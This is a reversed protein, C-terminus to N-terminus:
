VEVMFVLISSSVEIKNLCETLQKMLDDFPVGGVGGGGGSTSSAWPALQDLLYNCKCTYVLQVDINFTKAFKEAEEFKKSFLLRSFRNAPIAETLSKIQINDVSKDDMSDSDHGGVLFMINEQQLPLSALASCSSVKLTYVHDFNPLGLVKLDRKGDILPRSLIVVKLDEKSQSM